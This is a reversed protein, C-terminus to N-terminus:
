FWQRYRRFASGIRGRMRRQTRLRDHKARQMTGAYRFADAQLEKSDNDLSAQLVPHGASRAVRRCTETLFWELMEKPLPVYQSDASLPLTAEIYQFTFTGTTSPIDGREKMVIQLKGGDAQGIMEFQLPYTADNPDEIVLIRKVKKDMTIVGGTDSTVEIEERKRLWYCLDGMKNVIHDLAGNMHLLLTDDSTAGTRVKNNEYFSRVEDKATAVTIAADLDLADHPLTNMAMLADVIDASATVYGNHSPHTSDIYGAAALTQYSSTDVYAVFPMEAALEQMETNMTGRQAATGYAPFVSMLICPIQDEALQTYGGAVLDHRWKKIWARYFEKFNIVAEPSRNADNDGFWLICCEVSIKENAPMAAQAGALKRFMADYFRGSSPDWDFTDVPTWWTMPSYSPATAAYTQGAIDNRLFYCSPVSLKIGYTSEGWYQSLRVSLPLEVGTLAGGGTSIPLKGAGDARYDYPTIPVSRGSPYQYPSAYPHPHGPSLACDLTMDLWAGQEIYGPSSTFPSPNTTGVMWPLKNVFMKLGQHIRKGEFSPSEPAKAGGFTRLWPHQQYLPSSGALGEGISHGCLTWAKRYTITVTM